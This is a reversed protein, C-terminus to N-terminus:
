STIAARLKAKEDSFKDAIIDMTNKKEEEKKQPADLSEPLEFLQAIVKNVEEKELGGTSQKIVERLENDLRNIDDETILTEGDLTTTSNVIISWQILFSWDAM